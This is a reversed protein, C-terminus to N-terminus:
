KDDDAGRKLRYVERRPKGSVEAEGPVKKLRGHKLLIRVMAEATEKDRIARPGLQYIDPLSILNEARKLLWDLLKQALLLDAKDRGAEYLRLAESLNHQALVIGNRMEAETIEEAEIDNILALTAAIRGAHEASKGALPKISSFKGESAEADAYDGFKILLAEAEPSVQITPPALENRCGAALPLPRRLIRLLLTEFRRLTVESAPDPKRYPRSGITSAPAALIFRALFGQGQLVDNALLDAAINPQTM